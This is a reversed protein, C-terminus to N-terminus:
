RWGLNLLQLLRQMGFRLPCGIVAEVGQIVLHISQVHEPVGVVVTPGVVSRRAHIALREVVDFGVPGHLPQTFQRFFEAFVYRGCATRRTYMGLGSPLCLGNPIGITLSRTTCVAASTTKSG